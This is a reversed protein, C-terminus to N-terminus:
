DPPGFGACVWQSPRVLPCVRYSSGTKHDARGLARSLLIFTAAYELSEFLSYLFQTFSSFSFALLKGKSARQPSFPYQDQQSHLQSALTM